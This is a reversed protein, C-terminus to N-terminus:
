LLRRSSLVFTRGRQVILLLRLDLGYDGILCVVQTSGPTDGRVKFKECKDTRMRGGLDWGSDGTVTAVAAM